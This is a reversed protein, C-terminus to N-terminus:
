CKNWEKNQKDRLCKHVHTINSRIQNAKQQSKRNAFWRFISDSLVKKSWKKFFLVVCNQKMKICIDLPAEFNFREKMKFIFFFFNKKLPAENGDEFHLVSYHKESLISTMNMNQVHELGSWWRYFSTLFALEWASGTNIVLWGLIHKYGSM